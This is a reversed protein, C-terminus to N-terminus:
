FLPECFSLCVGTDCPNRVPSSLGLPLVPVFHGQSGETSVFTKRWIYKISCNLSFQMNQFERPMQMLNTSDCEKVTLAKWSIGRLSQKQVNAKDKFQIFSAPTPPHCGAGRVRTSGVEQRGVAAPQELHKVRSM